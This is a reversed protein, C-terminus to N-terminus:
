GCCACGEKSTDAKADCSPCQCATSENEKRSFECGCRPCKYGHEQESSEPM